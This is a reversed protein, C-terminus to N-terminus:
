EQTSAPVLVQQGALVASAERALVKALIWDYWFGDNGNGLDLGSKFKAELLAMGNTLEQQAAEKENLRSLAMALLIRASATRSANSPGSALCRRSYAVSERWHGNRYEWLALSVCRWPIMWDDVANTRDMSSVAFRAPSALMGLTTDDAAVLLCVKVLREAVIPDTTKGFQQVATKQFRTYRELDGEQLLAASFRTLDLSAHDSPEILDARVLLEFRDSALRWNGQLAHWDGLVRFIGAGELTEHAFSASGILQDAEAIRSQGLFAAAQTMKERSEAQLRLQTEKQRGSEALERLRSQQREAEVARRRADREMFFLYTSSGLGLVLAVTVALRAAM